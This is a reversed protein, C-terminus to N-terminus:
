WEYDELNDEMKEEPINQPKLGLFEMYERIKTIKYYKEKTKENTIIQMKVQETAEEVNMDKMTILIEIDSTFLPTAMIMEWAKSIKKNNEKILEEAKRQEAKIKFAGGILKLNLYKNKYKIYKNKYDINM